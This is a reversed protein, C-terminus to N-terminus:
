SNKANLSAMNIQVSARETSYKSIKITFGTYKIKELRQWALKYIIEERTM